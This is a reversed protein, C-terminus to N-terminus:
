VWFLPKRPGKSAELDQQSDRLRCWWQSPKERCEGLDLMADAVIMM